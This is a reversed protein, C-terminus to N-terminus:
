ADPGTYTPTRHIGNLIWGFVPHVKELARAAVILLGLVLPFVVKEVVAQDLGTLELLDAVFAVSLVVSWAGQWVTRILQVVIPNFDDIM